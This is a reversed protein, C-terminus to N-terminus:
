IFDLDHAETVAYAGNGALPTVAFGQFRFSFGALGPPVLYALEVGDSPISPGFLFAGSPDGYIVQLGFGDLHVGPLTAPSQPPFGTAYAQGVILAPAGTLGGGASILRILLLDGVALPLTPDNPDSGTSRWAHMELDEASGNLFNDPVEDAGIDILGNSIRPTGDRDFTAAGTAFPDGADLCPSRRSLHYDGAVRDVFLPDANILGTGSIPTSSGIDSHIANVTAVLSYVDLTANGHVISNAIDITAMASDSRIAGAIPALNDTVTSGHLTLTTPTSTTYEIAGGTLNSGNRLLYCDRLTVNCNKAALGGGGGFIAANNGITTSRITCPGAGELYIGGGSQPTTNHDVRSDDMLLTATGGGGATRAFVHIGGGGATPCPGGGIGCSASSGNAGLALNAYVEDRNMTLVCVSASDRVEIQVGGGGNASTNGRIICDQVIPMSAEGNEAVILIGGGGELGTTQNNEIICHSILPSATGTILVGGQGGTFTFGSVVTTANTNGLDLVRGSGSGRIITQAAGASSVLTLSKGLLDLDETYTGPAVVITAGSLLSNIAAQITPQNTPVNVTVGVQGASFTGLVLIVATCLLAVRM